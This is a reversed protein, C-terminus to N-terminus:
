ATPAGTSASADSQSQATSGGGSSQQSGGSDPAPQQEVINLADKVSESFHFRAATHAPITIAAGTNPNRGAREAEDRTVMKGLGPIKFEKNTKLESVALDSLGDLVSEVDAKSLGTTGALTSIVEVKKM